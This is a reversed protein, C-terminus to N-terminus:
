KKHIYNLPVKNFYNINKKIWNITEKIGNDLKTKESPDKTKKSDKQVNNKKKLHVYVTNWDQHALQREM